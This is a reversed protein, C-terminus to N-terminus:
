LREEDDHPALQTGAFREESFFSAHVTRGGFFRGDLDILGQVHCPGVLPPSPPPCRSTLHQSHPHSLVLVKMASESRTFEVFIRVVEQAPWNPLTVEFIMVRVVEGYKSCEEAVEEELDDDVQGAGVMNRLLLVRTPTGAFSARAAVALPVALDPNCPHQSPQSSRAAPPAASLAM